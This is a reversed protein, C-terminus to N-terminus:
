LHVTTIAESGGEAAAKGKYTTEEELGLQEDIHRVIDREGCRHM